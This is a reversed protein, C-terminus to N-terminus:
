HVTDNDDIVLRQADAVGSKLIRHREKARRRPKDILKVRAHMLDAGSVVRREQLVERLVYVDERNRFLHTRMQEVAVRLQEVTRADRSRERAGQIERIMLALALLLGGIVALM